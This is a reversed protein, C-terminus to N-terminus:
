LTYGKRYQPRILPEVEPANVAKLYRADWEIKKGAWVALNGLLVTETLPGAYDPFNSTAPPGGKIARVFEQFHGPSRPYEVKPESRCAWYGINAATIARGCVAQGERRDDPLGHRAAVEGDFLEAPPKKGGDYWTMTLAPRNGREPFTYRIISWKPYSEKNHGSTEAEVAIPDRLDLAMFPLNM